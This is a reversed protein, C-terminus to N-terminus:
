LPVLDVIHRIQIHLMVIGLRQDEGRHRRDDANVTPLDAIREAMLGVPQEVQAVNVLAEAYEIVELAPHSVRVPNLFQHVALSVPYEGGALVDDFRIQFIHNAAGPLPKLAIEAAQMDGGRHLLLREEDLQEM